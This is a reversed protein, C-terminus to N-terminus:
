SYGDNSISQYGTGSFALFHIHYLSRDDERLQVTNCIKGVLLMHYGLNIHKIIEVEWYSSSFDPVPFKFLKSETTSFELDGPGPPAKSLHRGLAYITKIGALSSDAIVLKKSLLIKELSFNTHRLGLLYLGSGSINVQIDMPFINFYEEDRYSVVVVKRPYAYFAAICKREYYTSTSNKLLWALTLFRFVPNGQYSIPKLLRYILIVSNNERFQEKLTLWMKTRTKNGRKVVLNIEAPDFAALEEPTVWVALSFPDLCTMGQRESIDIDLPSNKIFVKEKIEAPSLRTVMFARIERGPFLIKKLLSNLRAIM